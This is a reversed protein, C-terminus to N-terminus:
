RWNTVEIVLVLVNGKYVWIDVDGNEPEKTVVKFVRLGLSFLANDINKVRTTGVTKNYVTREDPYRYDDDVKDLSETSRHYETPVLYEDYDPKVFPPEIYDILAHEEFVDHLEEDVEKIPVFCEDCDLKDPVPEVYDISLLEECYDEEVLFDECYSEDM